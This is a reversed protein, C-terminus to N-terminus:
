FDIVKAELNYEDSGEIKGKVFLGPNGNFNSVLVVGDVDPALFETRGVATGDPSKRDILIDLERGQLSALFKASVRHQIELLKQQRQEKLSKKIKPKLSNAVTGEEASFTFVGIHEFFGLAVFDLLEQFEAETETPFGVLFTTRLVIGPVMSRLKLLIEKVRGALDPRNMMTLLRSNVHQLPLDLYNCITPQSAMLNLLEDNIGNPYAYLLRIWRPHAQAIIEELLIKLNFKGPLDLGYMTIDQAIINIEQVGAAVLVKAEHIISEMTRSRFQGRILPIACYSCCHNCGEAIKLYSTHPLTVQYRILNQNNLFPQTEGPLKYSSDKISDLIKGVDNVGIWHDVEPIERTLEAAYRQVLCGAVVLHNCQGYDPNKYRIMELITRIAEQKATQIFGCTNILILDAESFDYTLQWNVSIFQGLMIETDVLNKACGLSVVAIKPM